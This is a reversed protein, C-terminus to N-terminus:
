ASGRVCIQGASVFDPAHCDKGLLEDGGPDPKPKFCRSLDAVVSLLHLCIDSRLLSGFLLWHPQLLIFLELKPLTHSLITALLVQFVPVACKVRDAFSDSLTAMPVQSHLDVSSLRQAISVALPPCPINRNVGAGYM